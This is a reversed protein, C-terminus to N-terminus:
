LQLGFLRSMVARDEASRDTIWARFRRQVPGHRRASPWVLRHWYSAPVVSGQGMPMVLHGEAVEAFAESLGGLVLGIGSMAVRLGSGSLSFRPAEVAGLDVGTRQSWENWDCWDSNSTPVDLHAVPIGELSRLGADLGYREAFGPACVPVVGSPMLPVSRLDACPQDMYRIAFDIGGEDLDVVEWSTDLRLDIAGIRSFLSPMQRPFWNEAFTQTVALAIRRGAPDQTLDRQVRAIAAIGSSLDGAAMSLDPLPELGRPGRAFLARGLRKELDRIRLGVAATTVALEDAAATVSSLRM